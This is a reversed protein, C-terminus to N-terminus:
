NFPQQMLYLKSFHYLIHAPNQRIDALLQGRIDIAPTVGQSPHHSENNAETNQNNSQTFVKLARNGLLFGSSGGLLLLFCLHAHGLGKCEKGLVSVNLAHSGKHNAVTDADVQHLHCPLGLQLYTAMTAMYMVGM